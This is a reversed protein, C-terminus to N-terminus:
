GGKAKGMVSEVLEVIEEVTLRQLTKLTDNCVKKESWDPHAIHTLEHILTDAICLVHSVVIHKDEIVALGYVKKSLWAFEVTCEDLVETLQMKNM